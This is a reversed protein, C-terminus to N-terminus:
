YKADLAKGLALIDDLRVLSSVWHEPIGKTGYYLGALGGSIAATTDTDHGFNVARLIISQYSDEKMFCWFAAEISEIVYGGSRIDEEPVNRIDSFIIKRLVDQELESFDIKRWFDLILKQTSKYAKEKDIGDLLFEAMKLYILCCMAARIHRHTLASVLKIIEWQEDLEKGKIYFLLPLIRMLSGNGNDHDTGEHILGDLGARNGQELMERLRNISKATTIGIDFVDGHATWHGDQKWAIFRRSIDALDFGKLLSEGLCFTLSSDDSWTGKPQSYTGFGVMDTAPNKLMKESSSFEFPVGVADGIAVGLLADQVKNTKM